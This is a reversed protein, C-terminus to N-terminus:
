EAGLTPLWVRRLVRATEVIGKKRSKEAIYREVAEQLTITPTKQVPALTEARLADLATQAENESLYGQKRIQKGDVSVTFGWASQLRGRKDRWSRKRVNGGTVKVMVLARRSRSGVLVDSRETACRPSNGVCGFM